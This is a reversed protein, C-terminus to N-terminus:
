RRWSGAPVRALIPLGLIREALFGVATRLAIEIARRAPGMEPQATPDDLIRIMADSTDLEAFYEHAKEEVTEAITRAIMYSQDANDTTVTVTLIRHTKKTTLTRLISEKSVHMGGLRESIDRAFRDSKIVEGLDDVLYESALWTYYRDYTYYDGLRPEPRVSVAFRVESRYYTPGFALMLVSAICTIATVVVVLPWRRALIAWYQRLEM